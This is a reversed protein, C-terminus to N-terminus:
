MAVSSAIVEYSFVHLRSFQDNQDKHASRGQRGRYHGAALRRKTMTCRYGIVQGRILGGM